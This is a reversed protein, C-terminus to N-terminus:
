ALNGEAVFSYAPWPGTALFTLAPYGARLLEIRRRIQPVHERRVLYAAKLLLQPTPQVQVVNADALENLGVTLRTALEEAADRQRQNRRTQELLALMYGRGNAADGARPRAIPGDAEPEWGVRLAIEVRGRVRDLNAHYDASNTELTREIREAQEATTGFRAPLVTHAGMLAEIVREHALLHDRNLPVTSVEIPSVVAMLDGTRLGCIAGADIGSVSPLDIEPRDVIAYVYLSGM